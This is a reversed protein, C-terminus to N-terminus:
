FGSRELRDLLSGPPSAEFFDTKHGLELPYKLIRAVYRALCDCEINVTDGVTKRGITTTTLTHPIFSIEFIENYIKAITLSIGDVAVSGKEALLVACEEPVRISKIVSDGNRRDKTISGMGDVHGLVIHGDIRDTVLLARELNVTDGICANKFTTRGLTEPVATFFLRNGDASELTLCVGNISVSAGISVDFDPMEPAVQLIISKDARKIDKLVGTTEIIGTFM